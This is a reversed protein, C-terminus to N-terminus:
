NKYSDTYCKRVKQRKVYETKEKGKSHRGEIRQIFIQKQLGLELEVWKIVNEEVM